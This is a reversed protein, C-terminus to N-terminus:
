IVLIWNMRDSRNKINFSNEFLDVFKDTVIIDGRGINWIECLYWLM